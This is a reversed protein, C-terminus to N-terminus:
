RVNDERFQGRQGRVPSAPAKKREHADAAAATATTTGRPVIAVDNDLMAAALGLSAAHAGVCPWGISRAEADDSSLGLEIEATDDGVFEVLQHAANEITDYLDRLEAIVGAPASRRGASWSSITTTPVRHFEAAERISLGCRERLLCYLSKTM